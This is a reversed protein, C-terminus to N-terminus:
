WWIRAHRAFLMLVLGLVGSGAGNSHLSFSLNYLNHLIAICEARAEISKKIVPVPSSPSFVDVGVAGNGLLESPLTGRSVDNWASKM